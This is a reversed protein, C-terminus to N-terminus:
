GRLSSTEHRELAESIRGLNTKLERAIDNLPLHEVNRLYVARLEEAPSLPRIKKPSVFKPKRRSMLVLADTIKDLAEAIAVDYGGESANDLCIFAQKLLNRAEPINSM